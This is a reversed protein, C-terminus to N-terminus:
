ARGVLHAASRWAHHAFADLRRVADVRAIAEGGTLAGSAVASLTASRHTRQLEDLTKACQELRMLAQEAPAAAPDFTEAGPLERAVRQGEVPTAHDDGASPAAVERAAAVASRMADACLRWARVDDPGGNLATLEAKEGAAEALRSAHELAHLTNTLRRQEDESEPPGSVDSMFTQAQRLADAAEPV